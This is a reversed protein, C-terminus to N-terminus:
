VNICRKIFQVVEKNNIFVKTMARALGDVTREESRIEQNSKDIVFHMIEHLVIELLLEKNNELDKDIEITTKNPDYEGLIGRKKAIDHDIYSMSAVSNRFVINKPIRM